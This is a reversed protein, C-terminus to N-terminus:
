KNVTILKLYLDWAEKGQLVNIIEVKGKIRKGITLIGIDKGNTFDYGILLADGVNM